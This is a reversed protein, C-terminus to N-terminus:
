VEKINDFLFDEAADTFDESEKFEEVVKNPLEIELRAVIEGAARAQKEALAARRAEEWFRNKEIM